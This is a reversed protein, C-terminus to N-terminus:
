NSINSRREIQRGHEIWRAREAQLASYEEEREDAREANMQAKTLVAGLNYGIFLCLAGFGIFDWSM